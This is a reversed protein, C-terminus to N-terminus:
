VSRAALLDFRFLIFFLLLQTQREMTLQKTGAETARPRRNLLAAGRNRQDEFAQTRLAVLALRKGPWRTSIMRSPWCSYMKVSAAQGGSLSFLLGAMDAIPIAYFTQSGGGPEGAAFHRGLSDTAALLGLIAGWARWLSSVKQSSM